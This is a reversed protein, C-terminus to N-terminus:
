ALEGNEAATQWKDVEFGVLRLDGAVVLPRKIASPEKSLFALAAEGSSVKAKVDDPQKRWTTGRKNLITEWGFQKIFEDLVVEDVGDKKYDHFDYSLGNEDLFKRAKKVTDCNRIGYLIM